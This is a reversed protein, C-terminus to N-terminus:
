LGGPITVQGTSNVLSNGVIAASFEHATLYHYVPYFIFLFMLGLVLLFLSGVNLVARLNM